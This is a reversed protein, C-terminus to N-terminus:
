NTFVRLRLTGLGIDVPSATGNFFVVTVSDNASVHATLTISAIDISMSALVYNGLRAGTVTVVLTLTAGASISPPDYATSYEAVIEDLATSTSSNLINSTAARLFQNRTVLGSTASSAVFLSGYGVTASDVFNNAVIFRDVQRIDIARSGTNSPNYIVNNQISCNYFKPDSAYSDFSIAPGTLNYGGIQNGDIQVFSFGDFVTIPTFDSGIYARIANNTHNEVSNNAVIAISTGRLPNIDIGILGGNVKNGIIRAGGCRYWIGRASPGITANTFFFNGIIENDGNDQFTANNIDAYLGAITFLAFYCDRVSFFSGRVFSAGIPLNRVYLGSLITLYDENPSGSYPAPVISIGAGASKQTYTSALLTFNLFLGGATNILLGTPDVSTYTIVDATSTDTTRLITLKGEGVIGGCPITITTFNYTGKPYFVTRGTNHAAQMAVTDDTVGDGTAGFDKVSVYQSLKAEVNTAVSGTFPPTYSIQQADGYSSANIASTTFKVEAGVHLGATFTVVTDSTEQYAYLAGPGYQNVGDVFVSLSNTGPQYVMTTLTFVTQGATATQIEQSNTYNVFNSNIGIINDYSGIQVDTSTKIIFKYQSGDTLWIEGSPVRGAADLIIPNSHATVGSASTYSAQPTTTGAAYTFIKGGSLPNGSNDLFQAAVGGIPSLNVAM